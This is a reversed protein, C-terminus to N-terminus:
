SDPEGEGAYQPLVYRANSTAGRRAILGQDVMVRLHRKVTSEGIGYRQFFAMLESRAVGDSGAMALEGLVPMRIEDPVKARRSEEEQEKRAAILDALPRRKDEPIQMAGLEAVSEDIREISEVISRFEKDTDPDGVYEEEVAAPAPAIAAPVKAPARRTAYPEGLKAAIAPELTATPAGRRKALAEVADLDSLDWVRGAQWRKGPPVILVVGPYDEGYEAM